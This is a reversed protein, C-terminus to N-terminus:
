RRIATAGSRYEIADERQFRFDVRAESEVLDGNCRAPTFRWSKLAVESVRLFAPDSALHDILGLYQGNAGIRVLLAADGRLSSVEGPYEVNTRTDPLPAVWEKCQSPQEVKLTRHRNPFVTENAAGAVPALSAAFGGILVAIAAHRQVPLAKFRFM